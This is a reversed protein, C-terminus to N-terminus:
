PRCVDARRGHGLQELERIAEDAGHAVIVMWGRTRLDEHWRRQEPSVRGEGDARKMEVAVLPAQCVLLDPVGPSAGLSVLKGWQIARDKPPGSLRSGNIPAVFVIRHLRLWKVVLRQQDHEDATMSRGKGRRGEVKMAERISEPTQRDMFSGIAAIVRDRHSKM